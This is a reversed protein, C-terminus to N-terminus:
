VCLSVESPKLSTARIHGASLSFLSRRTEAVTDRWALGLRKSVADRSIPADALVQFSALLKIKTKQLM